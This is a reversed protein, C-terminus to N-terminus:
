GTIIATPTVPPPNVMSQRVSDIIQQCNDGGGTVILYVVGMGVIFPLSKTLMTVAEGFNDGGEKKGEHYADEVRIESILPSLVKNIYTRATEISFISPNKLKWEYAEEKTIIDVNPSDCVPCNPIEIEYDKKGINILRHKVGELFTHNPPHTNHEEVNWINGCNKIIQTPFNINTYGCKACATVDQKIEEIDKGKCKQCYTKLAKPNNCEPNKCLYNIFQTKTETGECSPCVRIKQESQCEYFHIPFSNEMELLMDRSPLLNNHANQTIWTAVKPDVMAEMDAHVPIIPVGRHSSISAEYTEFSGFDREGIPATDVGNPRNSGTTFHVNGQGDWILVLKKMGRSKWANLFPLAYSRTKLYYDGLYIAIFILGLFLLFGIILGGTRLGALATNIDPM